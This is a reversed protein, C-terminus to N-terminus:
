RRETAQQLGEMVSPVIHMREALAKYVGSDSQKFFKIFETRQSANFRERVHQGAAPADRGAAPVQAAHPRPSTAGSLGHWSSPSLMWAMVLVRTGNNRVANLVVSQWMLIGFVTEAVRGFGTTSSKKDEWDLRILALLSALVLGLVLLVCLWVLDSLPYYLSQWQPRLGPMAVCFDLSGYEYTYSYDYRELRQPLVNHFVTAMFSVREEVRTAVQLPFSTKLLIHLLLASTFSTAFSFLSTPLLLIHCLLLPIHIIFNFLLLMHLFLLFLIHIIPVNHFVTAMFSVREEVRTAVQLPFPPKLLIHLLLLLIHLSLPIHLLLLFLLNHRLLLPPSPPLTYPHHFPPLTDPHRLQTLPAHPPFPPLPHPIISRQPLSHGHLVGAGGSPQSRSPFPPKLLIHLLLPSSFPHPPSLSTSSSSSPIHRLLLPIHILLLLLFPTHIVFSLLLLMYRFLLFLTPTLLLLVNHFIPNRSPPSLTFSFPPSPHPSPPSPHPPPPLTHTSVREEVQTTVQLILGSIPPPPSTSHHSFPHLHPPPPPPNYTRPLPIHILINLFVLMHIVILLLLVNHFVTSGRPWSPCESRWEPQKRSTWIPSPPPIRRLFRHHHPPHLILSHIINQLIHIRLLPLFHILLLVIHFIHFIM